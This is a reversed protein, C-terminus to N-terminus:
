SNNPPLGIKERASLDQVYSAEMTVLERLNARQPCLLTVSRRSLVGSVAAKLLVNRRLRHDCNSARVTKYHRATTTLRRLVGRHLLQIKSKKNGGHDCKHDAAANEGSFGFLSEARLLGALFPRIPM